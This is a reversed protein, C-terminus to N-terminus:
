RRGGRFVSLFSKIKQKLRTRLKPTEGSALANNVEASATATEVTTVGEARPKRSRRRRKRQADRAEDGSTTSTEVIAAAIPLAAVAVPEAQVPAVPLEPWEMLLEDPAALTVTNDKGNKLDVSAEALKKAQDSDKDM